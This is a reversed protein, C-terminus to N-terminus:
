PCGTVTERPTLDSSRGYHTSAQARVLYFFAESLLPQASDCTWRLGPTSGVLCTTPGLDVHDIGALLQALDGRLLDYSVGTGLFSWRLESCNVADNLL